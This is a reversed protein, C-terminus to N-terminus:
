NAVVNVLRGPVVIVKRVTLAEIFREVNPDALAQARITQESAQASVQLRSRLKGNVQVVLVVEDRALASEDVVPWAQDVAAGTQGLAQWLTHSLHPTIPQLMLVVAELV